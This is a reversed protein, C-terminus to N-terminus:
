RVPPTGSKELAEVKANEEKEKRRGVQEGQARAARALPVFVLFVVLAVGAAAGCAGYFWFDGLRSFMRALPLVLSTVLLIGAVRLIIPARDLAKRYFRVLSNM